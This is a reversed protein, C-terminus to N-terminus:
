IWDGETSLMKKVKTTSLRDDKGENDENEVRVWCRTYKPILGLMSTVLVLLHVFNPYRKTINIFVIKKLLYVTFM